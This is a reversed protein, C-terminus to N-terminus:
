DLDDIRCLFKMYYKDKRVIQSQSRKKWIDGDKLIFETILEYMNSLLVLKIKKKSQRQM